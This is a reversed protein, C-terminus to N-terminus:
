SNQTSTQITGVQVPPNYAQNVGGQAIPPPPPPSTPRTNVGGKNKRGERLIIQSKQKTDTENM